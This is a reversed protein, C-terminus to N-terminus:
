LWIHVYITSRFVNADDDDYDCDQKKKEAASQDWFAATALFMDGGDKAAQGVAFVFDDVAQEETIPSVGGFDVVYDNGGVGDEDDLGFGVGAEDVAIFVAFVPGFVDVAVFIGEEVGDVLVAAVDFGDSVAELAPVVERGYDWNDDKGGVGFEAYGGFFVDDVPVEETVKDAAVASGYDGVRFDMVDVAVQEGGVGVGPFVFSFM